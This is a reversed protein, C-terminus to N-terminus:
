TYFYQLNIINKSLTMSKLINSSLSHNYVYVYELKNYNFMDELFCAETNYYGDEWSYLRKINTLTNINDKKYKNERSYLNKLNICQNM